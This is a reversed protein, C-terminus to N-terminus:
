NKEELKKLREEISGLQENISDLSKFVRQWIPNVEAVVLVEKKYSGRKFDFRGLLTGFSVLVVVFVLTFIWFRGFLFYLFPTNIIVFNYALVSTNFLTLFLGFYTSYGRTFYIRYKGFGDFFKRLITKIIM